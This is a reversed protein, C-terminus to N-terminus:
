KKMDFKQKRELALEEMTINDPTKRHSSYKEGSYELLPGTLGRRYGGM